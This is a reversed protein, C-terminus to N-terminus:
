TTRDSRFVTAGLRAYAPLWHAVSPVEAMVWLHFATGTELGAEHIVKRCREFEWGTRVFPIMLHLNDHTSRVQRIADLELRFLDPERVYRYCGRFGIMPNAEAPEFRDGGELGRFENTRFDMSRYIVPRPHFARAFTLMGAALKEIIEKAQGREVLLRPHVGALAQLILFEARLLGVGDVPMAAVEAARGPEGLNVYLRTVTAVPAVAGVHPAPKPTRVATPQAGKYVAGQQGDVTVLLGDRLVSTAKRTGVVCPIGLERSVIAAHSTTGGGDTVIATARRMFPVWDPTTMPAVLVEGDKLHGGEEPGRLVRAAGSVIGPSAGLGRVLLEVRGDGAEVPPKGVTTIPRTQVLLIHGHEVAFEMDQPKLYHEEARIALRAM